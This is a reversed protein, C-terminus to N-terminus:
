RESPSHRIEAVIAALGERYTPYNLIVGLDEKIRDNRVRKTEAYFSRAMDSLGAEDFPVEAPLPLDLLRAALAIVDQPPAPEDDTVNYVRHRGGRDIAAILTEAIDEVHIRNFVQGPKIIRRARGALVQGVASRGPGYIGALRFVQIRLRDEADAGALSLWAREAELRRRSRDSQPAEPTTEDVWAGDRDGYVGITSLYGVWGLAPAAALDARLQFLVPDGDRGPPASVVVHTATELAQTIARDPSSGDYVAADYGAARIRAAGEASRSTGTIRWGREKLRRSLALASFGMGFALLHTM